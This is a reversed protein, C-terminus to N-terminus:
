SHPAALIMDRMTPRLCLLPSLSLDSWWTRQVTASGFRLISLFSLLMPDFSLFLQYTGASWVVWDPKVQDLIKQADSDSKVEELSAVLVDVKGPGTKGADLIAQKQDPNRIM